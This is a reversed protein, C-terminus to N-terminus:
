PFSSDPLAFFFFTLIIYESYSSKGAGSFLFSPEVTLSPTPTFLAANTYSAREWRLLELFLSLGRFLAAHRESQVLSLLVARLKVGSGLLLLARAL